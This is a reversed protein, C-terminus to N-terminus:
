TDPMDPEASQPEGKDKRERAHWMVAVVRKGNCGHRDGNVDVSEMGAM